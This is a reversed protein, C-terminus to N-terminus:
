MYWSTQLTKRLNKCKSYQVLRGCLLIMTTLFLLVFLLSSFDDVQHAPNGLPNKEIDLNIKFFVGIGFTILKM